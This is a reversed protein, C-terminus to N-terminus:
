HMTKVSVCGDAFVFVESRIEMKNSFPLLNLSVIIKEIASLKGFLCPLCLKSFGSVDRGIELYLFECIKKSGKIKEKIKEKVNDLIILM